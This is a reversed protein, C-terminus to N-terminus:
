RQAAVVNQPAVDTRRSIDPQVTTDSQALTDTQSFRDPQAHEDSAHTAGAQTALAVEIPTAPTITAIQAAMRARRRMEFQREAEWHEGKCVSCLTICIVFLIFVIIPLGTILFIYGATWQVGSDEKPCDQITPKSGPVWVDISQCADFAPPTPSLVARDSAAWTIRWADHAQVSGVTRFFDFQSLEPPM